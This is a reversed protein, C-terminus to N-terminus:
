APAFANSLGPLAGAALRVAARVLVAFTVEDDADMLALVNAVTRAVKRQTERVPWLWASDIHAHGVAHVVHASPAAPAALM